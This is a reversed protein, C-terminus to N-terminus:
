IARKQPNGGLWLNGEDDRKVRLTGGPFVFAEESLKKSKYDEVALFVALAGTGCALTEDEVGREYSVSESNKLSHWTVNTGAEGFYRHSRLNHNLTVRDTDTWVEHNVMVLHPVGTNVASVHALGRENLGDMIEELEGVVSKDMSTNMPWTVWVSFDNELKARIKGVKSMWEYEGNNKSDRASLWLAVCKAGNGCMDAITGDNNYMCWIWKSKTNKSMVILGDVSKSTTEQCIKQVDVKSLQPSELSAETILFSNGESDYYEYM